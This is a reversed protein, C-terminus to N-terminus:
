FASCAVIGALVLEWDLDLGQRQVRNSHAINKRDSKGTNNINIVVDWHAIPHGFASLMAWCKCTWGDVFQCCYSEGCSSVRTCM